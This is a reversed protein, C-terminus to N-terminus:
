DEMLVPFITEFCVTTDDDVHTTFPSPPENGDHQQQQPSM